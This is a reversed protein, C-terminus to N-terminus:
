SAVGSGDCEDCPVLFGYKDEVEGDGDCEDCAPVKGKGDCVSCKQHPHSHGGYGGCEPCDILNM